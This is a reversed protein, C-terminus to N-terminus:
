RRSRAAHGRQSRAKGEWKLELNEIVEISVVSKVSTCIKEGLHFWQEYELVDAFGPTFAVLIL